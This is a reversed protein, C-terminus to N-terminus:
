CCELYIGTTTPCCLGELYSCKPHSACSSLALNGTSSDQSSLDNGDNVKSSVLSSEFHDMTIIWFYVQSQSLASDLEYSTLKKADEWAKMPENIAMDCIVYGRWAMEVDHYIPKLQTEFEISTYEKSFLEKTISTVPMFNIMHVYLPKTGFWTSVTVDMMGLNGVMMSKSLSNSYTNISHVSDSSSAETSPLMHWYTKAGTIEMALLLKAFNVKVEDANKSDTGWRVQTWLYSGYYCNVAESSSEQSKGDAFPFLGSAFSHGDFWSKHRTFPFFLEMGNDGDSESNGSYAIDYMISDVHYAYNELFTSNMKGLIASAYLIYGYHFHHDNYWGNGFDDQHDLLGNRTVIGGFNTDYLLDDESQSNLFSTLYDFLLSEARYAISQSLKTYNDRDELLSAIHALQALRGIQKGFGYINESLTPLVRTLDKDVQDLIQRKILDDIGELHQEVLPDDFTIDTLIEDYSWSSGIIPTMNGKISQYDIEFSSKSIIMSSPLTQTHHPLALMLLPIEKSQPSASDQSGAPVHMTKTTYDFIVSVTSKSQKESSKVRLLSNLSESEHNLKWSIKAGVPYTHSHYLLRKIAMSSSLPISTYQQTGHSTSANPLMPPVLALRLVGTFAELSAISTRTLKNMVLNIPDSTFVMWTAGEQTEVLFQVGNLQLQKDSTDVVSCVGFDSLGSTSNSMISPEGADDKYNGNEDRPCTFSKFTSLPTIVPSMMNYSLTVYPSGQVLYSEWYAIEDDPLADLAENSDTDNGFFRLTVSLPDFRMINRKVISELSGFTMDPYFIDRISIEDSMRHMAPYSVQLMSPNWKYGYPYTMIPYSFERDSTPQIVLNTWFAGTPFPIKLLPKITRNNPDMELESVLLSKHILEPLLIDTIPVSGYKNRDVAQFPVFKATELVSSTQKPSSSPSEMYPFYLLSGTQNTNKTNSTIANRSSLYAESIFCIFIVSCIIIASIRNENRILKKGGDKLANITPRNLIQVIKTDFLDLDSPDTSCGLSSTPSEDLRHIQYSSPFSANPTMMPNTTRRILSTSEQDNDTHNLAATQIEEDDSAEITIDEGHLHQLSGYSVKNM